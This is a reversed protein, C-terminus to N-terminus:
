APQCRRQTAVTHGRVSPVTRKSQHHHMLNGMSSLDGFAMDMSFAMSAQKKASATTAPRKQESAFSTWASPALSNLLSFMEVALLHNNRAFATLPHVAYLREVTPQRHHHHFPTLCRSSTPPLGNIHRSGASCRAHWCLSASLTVPEAGARHKEIYVPWGARVPTLGSRAGRRDVFIIHKEGRRLGRKRRWRIEPALIAAPTRTFPPLPRLRPSFRSLLARLGPVTLGGPDAIASGAPSEGVTSRTPRYLPLVYFCAHHEMSLLPRQVVIPQAQVIVHLLTNTSSHDSIVFCSRAM